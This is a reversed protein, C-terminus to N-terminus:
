IINKQFDRGDRQYYDKIEHLVQIVTIRTIDM